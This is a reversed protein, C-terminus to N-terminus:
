IASFIPNPPHFSVLRVPGFVLNYRRLGLFNSPKISGQAKFVHINLMYSKNVQNVIVIPFAILNLM